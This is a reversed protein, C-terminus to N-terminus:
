LALLWPHSVACLTTISFPFARFALRSHLFINSCLIHNNWPWVLNHTIASLYLVHKKFHSLFHSSTLSCFLLLYPSFHSTFWLISICLEVVSSILHYSHSYKSMTLINIEYGLNQSTFHSINTFNDPNNPYRVYVGGEKGFFCGMIPSADNCFGVVIHLACRFKVRETLTRWCM